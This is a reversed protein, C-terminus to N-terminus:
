CSPLIGSGMFPKDLRQMSSQITFMEKSIDERKRLLLSIKEDVQNRLIEAGQNKRFTLHHTPPPKLGSNITKAGFPSFNLTNRM